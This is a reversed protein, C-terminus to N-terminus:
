ANAGVARWILAARELGIGARAPTNNSGGVAEEAKELKSGNSNSISNINGTRSRVV